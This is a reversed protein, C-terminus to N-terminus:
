DGLVPWIQFKKEGCGLREIRAGSVPFWCDLLPELPLLRLAVGERLSMARETNLGPLVDKDTVDGGEALLRLMELVVVFAMAFIVM